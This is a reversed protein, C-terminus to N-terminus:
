RGLLIATGIGGAAAIAAVGTARPRHHLASFLRVANIAGSAGIPHGRALAGGGLNTILPDLGAGRVCAIAQVAYAEMIEAVDLDMARLGSAALTANIAAIPALGPMGPDGGLTAGGLYTVGERAAPHTGAVMLVFAAGDAAVATNAASVSASPGFEPCLLPARQAIRPTLARAFPDHALGNIPTIEARMLEAAARAKAHSAIAWDDQDHKSIDHALTQAAHHMEPDAHPWPAFPPREYPQYSTRGDPMDTRRARNPRRSYSEAGGAIVVQAMNSAILAAGLRIADLGGACQRDLTLGAIREPLGAALAAVRAPNGGAGLANSLILEDIEAADVHAGGTARGQAILDRIVPAAIEHAELGDFAGHRPVIASRKAAIIRVERV